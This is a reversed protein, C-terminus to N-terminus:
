PTSRPCRKRFGSRRNKAGPVPSAYGRFQLDDREGATQEAQGLRQILARHHFQHKEGAAARNKARGFHQTWDRPVKLWELEDPEVIVVLFPQFRRNLRREVSVTAIADLHFCEPGPSENIPTPRGLLM